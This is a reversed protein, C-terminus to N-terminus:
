RNWTYVYKDSNIDRSVSYSCGKSPVLYTVGYIPFGKDKLKALVWQDEPVEKPRELLEQMTLTCTNEKNISM